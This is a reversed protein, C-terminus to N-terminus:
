NYAGGDKCAYGVANVGYRFGIFSWKLKPNRFVRLRFIKYCQAHAIRCFSKNYTSTDIMDPCICCKAM